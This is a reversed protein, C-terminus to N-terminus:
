EDLGLFGSFMIAENYYYEARSKTTFHRVFTKWGRFQDTYRVRWVHGAPEFNAGGMSELPEMHVLVKDGDSWQKKPRHNPSDLIPSVDYIFM